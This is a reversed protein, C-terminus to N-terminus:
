KPCPVPDQPQARRAHNVRRIHETRRRCRLGSEGEVRKALGFDAVRPRGMQDLIINAPKLDRHIIGEGHAYAVAETAERVIEAAHRPAFPGAALQESLSEGDIYGMSLYHQGAHQGVEYVPVIGPHDLHATARAEGYFREIDAESALSGSLVMKLAVIRNLKGHHAKYVVGMGGRAIEALLTYEGFARPLPEARNESRQVLSRQVLRDVEVLAAQLRPPDRPFRRLYSEHRPRDGWRCRVRYEDAIVAPPLDEALGGLEPFRRIYDELLPRDPLTSLDPPEARDAVAPREAGNADRPAARRWRRELDIMILELLLAGRAARDEPTTNAAPLFDEIRPADGRCWSAEFRELQADL